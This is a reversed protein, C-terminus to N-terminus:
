LRLANDNQMQKLREDVTNRLENLRRENSETLAALQQSFSDFRGKIAGAVDERVQQSNQASELRGRGMEERLLREGREQGQLMERLAGGASTKRQRLLLLVLLLLALVLLVIAVVSLASSM